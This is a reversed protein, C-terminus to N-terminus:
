THAMAWIESPPRETSLPDPEPPGGVLGPRVSGAPDHVAASLWGVEDAVFIQPRKKSEDFVIGLYMGILGLTLLQAGALLTILVVLSTWGAAVPVGALRVIIAGIGLIVALASVVLGLGLGLHLPIKSFSVVGSVALALKRKVSYKSEGAVRAPAEFEITATPLGLWPVLGRLFRDNETIDHSVIKVVRASMLRFDAGGPVIPVETLGNILRYYGKSLLNDMPSLGATRTRVAQVVDVGTEYLDLMAPILSPPHQLDGDLTICAEARSRQMGAILAMQHGARRLMFVAGLRPDTEVFDRVIGATGDTSPEVVYLIRWDYRHSVVELARVLEQHFRHIGAAENLLPVVM